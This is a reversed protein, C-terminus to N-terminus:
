RLWVWGGAVAGGCMVLMTTTMGTVRSWQANNTLLSLAHLTRGAVLAGGLTWLMWVPAGCLELLAIQLLCIPVTESFNGHARMRHTLAADGGDLFMVKAEVRRMIVLATLLVQAIALVSALLLTITPLPLATM